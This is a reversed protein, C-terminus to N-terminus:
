RGASAGPKRRYLMWRPCSQDVLEFQEALIPAVADHVVRNVSKLSGLADRDVFVRESARLDALCRDLLVPSHVLFFQLWFLRPARGADVLSNWDTASIVTVRETRRTHDRLYRTSDTDIPSPSVHPEIGKRAANIPNRFTDLWVGARVLPSSSGCQHGSRAARADMGIALAVLGLLVTAAATRRAVGICRSTGGKLRTALASWGIWAWWATVTMVLGGNLEWLIDISRNVWKFLMALGLLSAAGAYLLERPPLRDRQGRAIMVAVTGVALAPGLLNYWFGWGPQWDMVQHGFGSAYLCLPEFLREPFAVSLVRPGFLATCLAFFTGVCVALFVAARGAPVGLFLTGGIYFALGAALMYLGTDTQWAISLGVVASAAVCWWAGAPNMGRVVAFLFVFLFPHRIPWDSPYKYSLGECGCLLVALTVAAALWPNRLWDTLVFFASLYYLLVVVLLFVVYRELTLQLGGDGMVLAFARAHGIGYHSEFDLGPVLGPARYYLAPGVIYSAVHLEDNCEAATTPVDYPALLGYLSAALPLSLLAATTWVIRPAPRNQATEDPPDSTTPGVARARLFRWILPVALVAAVGLLRGLSPHAHFVSRCARTAVPAFAVVAAAALWPSIRVWRVAAWGCLVGGACVLAYWTREYQEQWQVVEYPTLYVSSLVTEQRRDKTDGHVMILGAVVLTAIFTGCCVGWAAIAFRRLLDAPSQRAPEHM